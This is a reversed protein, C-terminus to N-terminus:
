NFVDTFTGNIEAYLRQSYIRGNRNSGTLQEANNGVLVVSRTIMDNTSLFLSNLDMLPHCITLDSFRWSILTRQKRQQFDPDPVQVNKAEPVCFSAENSMVFSELNVHDM